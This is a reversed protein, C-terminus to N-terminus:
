NDADLEGGPGFPLSAEPLQASLAERVLRRAQQQLDARLQMAEDGRYPTDREEHNTAFRVGGMLREDALDFLHAAGVFSGEVFTRRLDPGSGPEEVGLPLLPGEGELQVWRDLQPRGVFVLLYRLDIMRQMMERLNPPHWQDLARGTPDVTGAALALGYTLWEQALAVRVPSPRDRDSLNDLRWLHIVRANTRESERRDSRCVRARCFRLPIQSDEGALRLDLAGIKRDGAAAVAVRALELQAVRQALAPALEVYVDEASDCACLCCIAVWPAVMQRVMQGTSPLM